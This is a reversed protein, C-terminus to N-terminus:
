LIEFESKRKFFNWGSFLTTGGLVVLGIKLFNRRNMNNGM